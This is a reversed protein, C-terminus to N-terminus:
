GLRDNTTSPQAPPNLLTTLPGGNSGSIFYRSHWQGLQLGCARYDLWPASCHRACNQQDGRAASAAPLSHHREKRREALLLSPVMQAASCPQGRVDHRGDCSVTQSLPLLVETRSACGKRYCCRDSRHRWLAYMGTRKAMRNRRAECSGGARGLFLAAFHYVHDHRAWAHIPASAIWGDRILWNPMYRLIRLIAVLFSIINFLVVKQRHRGTSETTSAVTEHLRLRKRFASRDWM